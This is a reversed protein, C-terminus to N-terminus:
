FLAVENDTYYGDYGLEKLEKVLTNQYEFDSLCQYEVSKLFSQREIERGKLKDLNDQWIKAEKKTTAEKLFRTYDRLQPAIDDSIYDRYTQILMFNSNMDFLRVNDNINVVQLECEYNIDGDPYYVYKYKNAYELSKAYFKVNNPNKERGTTNFKRDERKKSNYRFLKM